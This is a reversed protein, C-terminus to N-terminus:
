GRYRSNSRGKRRGARVGHGKRRTLWKTTSVPLKAFPIGGTLGIERPRKTPTIFEPGSIPRRNTETKKFRRRDSALGVSLGGVTAATLATGGAIAGFNASFFEAAPIVNSLLSTEEAAIIALNIALAIKANTNETITGKSFKFVQFDM